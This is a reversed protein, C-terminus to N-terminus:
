SCGLVLFLWLVHVRAKDAVEADDRVDVVALGGQGIPQELQGPRERQALHGRLDEVRHVEFALAADGDLGFADAEMVLGLVAVIVLEVQDIRGAVHVKGIFDRAGQGGAFASQEDDVGALADLRLGDRIGKQGRLVVEGDNGDDVFDVRGAACVSSTLDCISFTRAMGAESASIGDAGLATQADFLDEFGDDGSHRRRHARGIGREARQDEIRPEVRIAAGHDQHAHHFASDRQMLFNAEAGVFLDVFHFAEARQGGFGDHEGFEGGAVDAEDDGVDLLDGIGAHSVGDGVGCM